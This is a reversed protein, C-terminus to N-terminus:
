RAPVADTGVGGPAPHVSTVGSGRGPGSVRVRSSSNFIPVHPHPNPFPRVPPVYLDVSCYKPLRYSLRDLIVFQLFSTTTSSTRRSFRFLTFFPTRCWQLCYHDLIIYWSFCNVLCVTDECRLVETGARVLFFWSPRPILAPGHTM